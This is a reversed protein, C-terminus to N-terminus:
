RLIDDRTVSGVVRGEDDTVALTRGHHEVLLALADRLTTASTVRPGDAVPGLELEAITHLALAKLARDAGM